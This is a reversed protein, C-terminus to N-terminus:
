LVLELEIEDRIPIGRMGVLPIEPKIKRAQDVAGPYVAVLRFGRKQYFSLAHLNDNTTTLWVRRCGAARAEDRVVALLATGVGVGEQWSNLTAVECAGGSLTYTVVGVREAGRLAVFGPLRDAEYTGSHTVVRRSGWAEDLTRAAWDREAEDLARVTLDVDNEERGGQLTVPM